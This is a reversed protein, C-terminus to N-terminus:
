WEPSNLYERDILRRPAKPLRRWSRRKGFVVRNTKAPSKAKTTGPDSRAALGADEGEGLGVGTALKDALSGAEVAAGDERGDGEEALAVVFVAGM